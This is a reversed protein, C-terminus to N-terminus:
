TWPRIWALAALPDRGSNGRAGMLAGQALLHAMKGVNNEESAAIENYASQMTLVMNTGTDGDPVPFVNLSNILPQNAKLWVLAAEVYKKLHQLGDLRNDVSQTLESSFGM